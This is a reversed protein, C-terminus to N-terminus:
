RTKQAAHYAAHVPAPIRGRSAVPQKNQKAWARVKQNDARTERKGAVHLHRKRANKRRANAVFAELQGRLKAAHKAHLDIEYEVGDLAFDVTEVAPKGDIDDVLEVIEQKM